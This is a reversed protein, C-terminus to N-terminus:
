QGKPSNEGSRYRGNGRALWQAVGFWIGLAVWWLALTRVDIVCSHAGADYLSLLVDRGFIPGYSRSFSEYAEPQLWPTFLLTGLFLAAPAWTLCVLCLRKM